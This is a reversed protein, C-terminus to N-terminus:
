NPHMRLEKSAGRFTDGGISWYETAEALAVVERYSFRPWRRTDGTRPRFWPSRPWRRTDVSGETVRLFYSSVTGTATASFTSNTITITCNGNSGAFVVGRVVDLTCASLNNSAYNTGRSNSTLDLITKGDVLTGRVSFQLSTLPNLANVTLSFTTPTVAFSQMARPLCIAFDNVLPNCAKTVEVGDPIGDGDTDPLLPNTGLTVENGDQLGDGDTDAKRIDTGLNFEQLNTLGDRDFDEQADVPNRPDMGLQIEASDPIGDGDTDASALTVRATIIGSAGDNIAQIVVTGSAAATLLGNPSISVIAPNSTTYNTGTSANTVNKTTNNPYIATVTLQATQGISALSVPTPTLTLSVPIQSASGIVIDPLNVAGNVPVTFFASEGSTTIGNQVCTARAKVQGSNAPINPLVWSGDANVQVNRNLVSVTCNQNLQAWLPLAALMAILTVRRTM